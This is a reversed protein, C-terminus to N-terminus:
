LRSEIDGSHRARNRPYSRRIAFNRVNLATFGGLARQAYALSRLHGVTRAEM